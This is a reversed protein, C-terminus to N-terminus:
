DAAARLDPSHKQGEVRHDSQPAYSVRPILLGDDCNNSVLTASKHVRLRREYAKDLTLNPRNMPVDVTLSSTVTASLLSNQSALHESSPTNDPTADPSSLLDLLLSSRVRSIAHREALDNAACAISRRRRTRLPMAKAIRTTTTGCAPMAPSAPPAARGGSASCLKHFSLM